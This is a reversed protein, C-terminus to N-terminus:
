LTVQLSIGVGHHWSYRRHTEGCCVCSLDDGKDGVYLCVVTMEPWASNLNLALRRSSTYSRAFWDFWKCVWRQGAHVLNLGFWGMGEPHMVKNSYLLFSSTRSCHKNWYVSVKLTHLEWLCTNQPNCYEPEDLEPLYVGSGQMDNDLMIDCKPFTQVDCVCLCVCLKIQTEFCRHHVAAKIYIIVPVLKYSNFTIIFTYFTLPFSSYSRYPYPICWKPMQITFVFNIEQM